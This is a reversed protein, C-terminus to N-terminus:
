RWWWGEGCSVCASTYLCLVGMMTHLNRGWHKVLQPWLDKKKIRKKKIWMRRSLEKM